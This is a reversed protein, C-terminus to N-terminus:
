RHSRGLDDRHQGDEPRAEDESLCSGVAELELGARVAVPLLGCDDQGHDHDEDGPTLEDFGPRTL